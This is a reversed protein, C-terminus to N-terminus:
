IHWLRGNVALGAHLLTDLVVGVVGGLAEAFAVGAVNEFGDVWAVASGDGDLNDVEASEAMALLFLQQLSFDPQQPLASM